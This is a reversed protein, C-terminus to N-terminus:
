KGRLAYDEVASLGTHHKFGLDHKRYREDYEAKLEYFNDNTKEVHEKLMGRYKELVESYQADHILNRTEGRDAKMDYLEEGQVDNYCMYKYDKGRVMRGPIRYGEFEDYWESVVYETSVTQSKGSLEKILSIGEVEVAEPVHIGAYDLLTPMVDLVSVLGDVNAARPLVGPGRVIMPVRNTEEYFTGYKTVLGHAGMGEGHDAFLMILTDELQNQRELSDLIAGIKKDVLHIYYYYAALYHKYNERTWGVTHRQRRHACCMFQIFEPRNAIDEFEFNDLLPPLEVHPPIPIDQHEGQNEGIWMCINHPNHLDAVALYPLEPKSDIFNVVKQTTDEDFHSEYAYTWSPYEPEKKIEVSKVVEFGRLAGYDHEKGFHVCRWGNQTFVEGLTPIEGSLKDFGMDKVNSLVHTQHPYRSTWFSARAPQCLPCSTYANDFVVGERALRDINPADVYTNGYCKLAQASLQDCIILLINKKNNM